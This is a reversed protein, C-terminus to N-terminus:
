HGNRVHVKLFITKKKEEIMVVVLGYAKWECVM